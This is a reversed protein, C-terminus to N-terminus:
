RVTRDKHAQGNVVRKEATDPRGTPKAENPHAQKWDSARRRPVVSEPQAESTSVARRREIRPPVEPPRARGVSEEFAQEHAMEHRAAIPEIEALAAAVKKRLSRNFFLKWYKEFVQQRGELTRLRKVERNSTLKTGEIRLRAENRVYQVYGNYRRASARNMEFQIEGVGERLGDSGDSLSNRYKYSMFPWDLKSFEILTNSEIELDEDLAYGSFIFSKGSPQIDIVAMRKETGGKEAQLWTGEMYYKGLVMKRVLNFKFVVPFIAETLALWFVVLITVGVGAGAMMGPGDGGATVAIAEFVPLGFAVLGGVIIAASASNSVLGFRAYPNM